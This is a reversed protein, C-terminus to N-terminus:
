ECVHERDDEKEKKKTLYTNYIGQALFPREARHIDWCQLIVSRAKFGRAEVTITIFIM